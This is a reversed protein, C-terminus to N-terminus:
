RYNIFFGTLSLLLFFCDKLTIGSCFGFLMGGDLIYLHNKVMLFLYYNAVETSLHRLMLCKLHNIEIILLLNLLIKQSFIMWFLKCTNLLIKPGFSPVLFNHKTMLGLLFVPLVLVFRCTRYYNVELYQYPIGKPLNHLM